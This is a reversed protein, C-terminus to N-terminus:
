CTTQGGPLQPKWVTAPNRAQSDWSLVLCLGLDGKLM